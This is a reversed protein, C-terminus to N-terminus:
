ENIQWEYETDDEYARIGHYWKTGDFEHLSSFILGELPNGGWESIEYFDLPPNRFYVVQRIPLKKIWDILMDYKYAYASSTINVFFLIDQHWIFAQHWHPNKYLILSDSNANQEKIDLNVSVINDGLNIHIYYKTPSNNDFNQAETIFEDVISALKRDQIVFVPLSDRELGSEQAYISPYLISCFLFSLLLRKMSDYDEKEDM